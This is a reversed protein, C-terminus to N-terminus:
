KANRTEHNRGDHDAYREPFENPGFGHEFTMYEMISFV